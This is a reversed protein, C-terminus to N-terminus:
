AKFRQKLRGFIAGGFAGTILQAIYGFLSNAGSIPITEFQVYMLGLAAGIATAGAIPYGFKAIKPLFKRIVAAIPFAILFGILIIMFYLQLHTVDFWINSLYDGFSAEVSLRQLVFISSIITGIIYTIIAAAVLALLNSLLMKILKM